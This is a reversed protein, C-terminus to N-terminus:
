NCKAQHCYLVYGGQASTMAKVGAEVFELNNGTTVGNCFCSGDIPYNNEYQMSSVADRSIQYYDHTIFSGQIVKTVCAARILRKKPFLARFFM